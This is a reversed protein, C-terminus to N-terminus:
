LWHGITPDTASNVIMSPAIVNRFSQLVSPPQSNTGPATSSAIMNKPQNEVTIPSLSCPVKLMCTSRENRMPIIHNM